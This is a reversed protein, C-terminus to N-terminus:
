ETLELYADLENGISKQQPIEIEEYSGKDDYVQMKNRNPNVYVTQYEGKTWNYVQYINTKVTIKKSSVPTTILILLLFFNM